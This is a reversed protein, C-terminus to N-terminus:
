YTKKRILGKFFDFSNGDPFLEVKHGAEDEALLYGDDSLGKIYLPSSTGRGGSDEVM